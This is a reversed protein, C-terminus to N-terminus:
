LSVRQGNHKHLHIVHLLHPVPHHLLLVDHYSCQIDVSIGDPALQALKPAVLHHGPAVYEHHGEGRAPCGHLPAQLHLQLKRRRGPGCAQDLGHLPQLNGRQLVWRRGRNSSIDPPPNLYLHADVPRFRIIPDIPDDEPLLGFTIPHSRLHLVKAWSHVPCGFQAGQGVTALDQTCLTDRHLDLAGALIEDVLLGNLDRALALPRQPLVVFLLHKPEVDFAESRPRFLPCQKFAVCRLGFNSQLEGRLLSCLDLVPLFMLLLSPGLRHEHLAELM